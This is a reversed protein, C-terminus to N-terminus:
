LEENDKYSAQGFQLIYGNNDYIAFDRMGYEFDDLNYCIQVKDKLAQWLEDVDEVNFYFSGTFFPKIFNTIANPRAIMLGVDDKSIAAWGWDENYEICTFGLFHTYFEITEKLQITWLMPTLASIKM